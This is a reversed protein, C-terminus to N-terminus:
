RNSGGGKARAAEPRQAAETRHLPAAEEASDVAALAQEPRFSGPPSTTRPPAARSAPFRSRRGPVPALFARLMQKEGSVRRCLVVQSRRIRLRRPGALSWPM